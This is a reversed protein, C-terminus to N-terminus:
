PKKPQNNGSNGGSSPQTPAPKPPSKILSGRQEDNSNAPTKIYAGDNARAMKAEGHINFIVFLVVLSVGIGFLFGGIRNLWKVCTAHGYPFVEDAGSKKNEWYDSAKLQGSISFQYSFLVLMICLALMVFSSYLLWLYVADKLPVVDKIFALSVALFGSSLTLLQKDYESEDDGIRKFIDDIEKDCKDVRAQEGSNGKEFGEVLSRLGEIGGARRELEIRLRQDHGPKFSSDTVSEGCGCQCTMSGM